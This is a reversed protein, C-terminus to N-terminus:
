NIRVANGDRNFKNCFSAPVRFRTGDSANKYGQPSGKRLNKRGSPIEVQLKKNSIHYHPCSDDVFSPPLPPLDVDFGTEIEQDHNVLSWPANVRFDQGNVTQLQDYGPTVNIKKNEPNAALLKKMNSNWFNKVASDTRGPLQKAIEAWKNGLNNHLSIIKMAEQHSFKGRKLGPQLYNIWRLRCSKGSRHLGALKPISSWSGHRGHTSIYNVLKKDEEPSWLGRRLM